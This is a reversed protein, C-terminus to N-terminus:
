TRRARRVVHQEVDRQEDVAILPSTAADSASARNSTSGANAVLM